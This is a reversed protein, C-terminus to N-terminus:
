ESYLADRAISSNRRPRIRTLVAPTLDKIEYRLAVKSGVTAKCDTLVLVFSLKRMAIGLAVTGVM